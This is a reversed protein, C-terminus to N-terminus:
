QGDQKAGRILEVPKMKYTFIGVIVAGTWMIAGNYGRNYILSIDIILFFITMLFISLQLYEWTQNVVGWFWVLFGIFGLVIVVSFPLLREILLYIQPPSERFVLSLVHALVVLAILTGFKYKTPNTKRINIRM